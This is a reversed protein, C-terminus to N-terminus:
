NSLSVAVSHIASADAFPCYFAGSSLFLFDDTSIQVLSTHCGSEFYVSNLQYLSKDLVWDLHYIEGIPPHSGPECDPFLRDIEHRSVLQLPRHLQRKLKFADIKASLPLVAMVYGNGDWLVSAKIMQNRDIGTARAAEELSTTRDHHLVRYQVRHKHLFKKLTAALTM